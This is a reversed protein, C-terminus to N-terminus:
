SCHKKILKNTDYIKKKLIISDCFVSGSPFLAGWIATRDLYDLIMNLTREGRRTVNFNLCYHKTADRPNKVECEYVRYLRDKRPIEIAENYFLNDCFYKADEEDDFVLLGYGKDAFIKKTHTWTKTSYRMKFLKWTSVASVLHRSGKEYMVVKYYKQM